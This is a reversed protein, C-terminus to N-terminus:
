KELCCLEIPLREGLLILALAEVVDRGILYIARKLHVVGLANHRRERCRCRRALMMQGIAIVEKVLCRLIVWVAGIRRTGRYM